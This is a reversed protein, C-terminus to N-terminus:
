CVELLQKPSEIAFDPRAERLSAPDLGYLVGAVEVGAARATAVDVPSDGVMLTQAPTAAFERMLLLLGAPDPKSAPGDGGGVVRAFRAEIGLGTLILRSLSGPKNTLVSLTRSALADLTEATGPYLRTTDLLCASYAELFVPLVTAPDHRLGARELGRAVLNRAGHGILARVVDLALPATGPAIRNTAVNFATAIDQTSDVLTGDLDFVVLRKRAL